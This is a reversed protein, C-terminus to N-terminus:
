AAISEAAPETLATGTLAAPETLATRAFPDGRHLDWSGTYM